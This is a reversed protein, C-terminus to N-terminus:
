ANMGLSIVSLAAVLGLCINTAKGEHKKPATFIYSQQDKHPFFSILLPERKKKAPALEAPPEERPDQDEIATDCDPERRDKGKAQKTTDIIIKFLITCLTTPGKTTDTVRDPDLIMDTIINIMSRKFRQQKEKLGAVQLLNTHSGPFGYKNAKLRKFCPSYRLQANGPMANRATGPSLWELMRLSLPKLNKSTTYLHMGHAGPKGKVWKNGNDILGEKCGIVYKFNFKEMILSEFYRPCAETPVYAIWGLQAVDADQVSSAMFFADYCCSFYQMGYSIEDHEKNFGFCVQTQFKGGEKRIWWMPSPDFYRQLDLM